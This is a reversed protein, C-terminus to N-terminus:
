YQRTPQDIIMMDTFISDKNFQFVIGSIGENRHTSIDLTYMLGPPNTYIFDPKGLYRIILSIPRGTLCGQKYVLKIIENAVIRKNEDCYPNKDKWIDSLYAMVAECESNNLKIPNKKAIAVKKINCGFFSLCLVLSSVLVFKFFRNM